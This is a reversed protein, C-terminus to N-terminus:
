SLLDDGGLVHFCQFDRYSVKSQFFALLRQTCYDGGRSVEACFVEGGVCFLASFSTQSEGEVTGLAVIM